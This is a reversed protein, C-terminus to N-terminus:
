KQAAGDDLIGSLARERERRVTLTFIGPVYHEQSFLVARGSRDYEIQELRLLPVSRSCKLNRALAPQPLVPVIEASGGRLRLHCSDELFGYVSGGGYAPEGAEQLIASPIVDVVQVAPEEEVYVIREVWLGSPRADLGLKDAMWGPIARIAQAVLVVESAVDSTKLGETVGIDVDLASHVRKEPAAVFTGVGHVRRVLGDRELGSLIERLTARSVAYQEALDFESPLRDGVKYTGDTLERRLQHRLEESVTPRVRHIRSASRAM